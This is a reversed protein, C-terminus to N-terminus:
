VAQTIGLDGNNRLYRKKAGAAKQMGRETPQAYYKLTTSISRHGMRQQIVKADHGEAVLMTAHTRRLDHLTVHPIGARECAPTFVRRRFNTYRIAQGKPSTFLPSDADAANRGTEAIHRSILLTDEPHLVIERVGADTKSDSIMIRNELPQFDRIRLEAFESWRMGTALLLHVAFYYKDDIEQLLTICQEPTLATRTTDSPKPAKVGELPNKSILDDTIASSLISRLVNLHNIISRPKLGNAKWENVATQIDARHIRNIPMDGFVPLLHKRMIGDRRRVTMPAHDLLPFVAKAYESFTINGLRPDPLLGRTRDVELQHKFTRAERMTRFTRSAQKGSTLRWKVQYRDGRKTKRVFIGPHNSM